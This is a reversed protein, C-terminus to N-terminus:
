YKDYTFSDYLKELAQRKESASYKEWDSCLIFESKMNINVLNKLKLENIKNYETETIKSLGNVDGYGNTGDFYTYMFNSTNNLDEAIYSSYYDSIINNGDFSLEFNGCWMYDVGGKAYANGLIVYSNNSKDYYGTLNNQFLTDAKYLKNNSFYYAYADNNRMSGGGYQMIFEPKGDFDLDTFTLESQYGVSAGGNVYWEDENEMLANIFAEKYTEEGSSDKILYVNRNTFGGSVLVMNENKDENGSKKFSLDYSGNKDVAFTYKGNEDTKCKGIYDTAGNNNQYVEVTVDAIPTNKGSNILDNNDYVYGTIGNERRALVIDNLLVTDLGAEFEVKIEVEDYYYNSDINGGDNNIVLTYTGAPLSFNFNGSDNTTTKDVFTYMANDVTYFENYIKVERNSIPANTGQEKVKGIISGNVSFLRYDDGTYVFPYMGNKDAEGYEEKCLNLAESLTYYNNTEKNIQALLSVIGVQAECGYKAQISGSNGVLGKVGKKVFMDCLDKDCGSYCSNLYIMSNSLNGLVKDLYQYNVAIKHNATKVIEKNDIMKKFDTNFVDYKLFNSFKYEEGIELYTHNNARVGHGFWMVLQNSSLESLSSYTVNENEYYCSSLTSYPTLYNYLKRHTEQVYEQIEENFDYLSPQYDAVSTINIKPSLSTNSSLTAQRPTYVVTIGSNMIISVSVPEGNSCDCYNMYYESIKGNDKLESLYLNVANIANQVQNEPVYGNEDTYSKEIENVKDILKDSELFDKLSISDISAINYDVNATITYNNNDVKIHESVTITSNNGQATAKNEHALINFKSIGVVSIVAIVVCLVSTIIKTTKDFHKILCYLLTSISALLLVIFICMYTYDSGTKISTNDQNINNKTNEDSKDSKNNDNNSIISTTTQTNPKTDQTNSETPKITPETTSNVVAVLTLNAQEGSKLDIVKTSTEDNSDKLEFNDPLLAEISVDKVTFDNTNTVSITIQIDENLSYSQKDTTLNVQLGDQTTTQALATISFSFLITLMVIIASLFKLTRKM